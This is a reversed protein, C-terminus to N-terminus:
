NNFINFIYSELSKTTTAGNDQYAVNVTVKRSNVDVTGGSTVIDASTNDRSVSSLVFTRDFQNDIIAPSTTARWASGTWYLRYPTEMTLSAIQSSWGADRMTKVAVVGEEALMASQIRATNRFSLKSLGSYVGMIFVVSSGIIAAAIIVEVLSMGRQNKHRSSKIHM